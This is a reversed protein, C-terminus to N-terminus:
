GSKRNAGYWPTAKNGFWTVLSTLAIGLVSLVLIGSFVRVTNFTQSASLISYGIGSTAGFLEAAFVAAVARTISIQMGAFILPLAAPLRVKYIAAMTSANFSRAVDVLAPDTGAIGTQTNVLVPFVSVLAVLLLKSTLGFGFWILLLPALALAPASNIGVVLPQLMRRLPEVLAMVLGLGLGVLLGLGYGAGLEIATTKLQPLIDGSSCWKWLDQAVESPPSVLVPQNLAQAFIEWAGFFLVLGALGAFRGLRKPGFIGRRGFM